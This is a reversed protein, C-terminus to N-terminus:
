YVMITVHRSTSTPLSRNVIVAILNIWPWYTPTIRCRMCWVNFEYYIITNQSKWYIHSKKNKRRRFCKLSTGIKLRIFIKNYTTIQNVESIDDSTPKIDVGGVRNAIYIYYRCLTYYLLSFIQRNVYRGLKFYWIEIYCQWIETFCVTSCHLGTYSRYLPFLENAWWNYFASNRCM